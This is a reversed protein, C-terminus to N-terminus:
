AAAGPAAYLAFLRDQMAAGSYRAQAAACAAAGLRARLGADATLRGMAEALAEPSGAPVLLAERGDAVVGPVGGVATSVVPRAMAMAELLVMPLGEWASSFAVVDVAAMLAPMDRLAGTFVLRDPGLGLAAAQAELAGRLEGEGVILFQADPAQPALLAAAKLFTAQDKQPNLRGIVAVTVAGSRVGFRSLDMPRATGPNFRGMDVGNDIVTIAARPIRGCGAVYDAVEGSVAIRVHAGATVAAYLATPAAKRRWPDTNHLSLIRRPVGTLRAAAQGILDSKVLHTHVVDPRWRRMLAVARLLARPDRLGATSLREAAVGRAAVEEGLPGPTFYAVRAEFGRAAAGDLLDLLLTEAGGIGLSDIVYLVKRVTAESM